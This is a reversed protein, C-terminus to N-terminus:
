SWGPYIKYALQPACACSILADLRLETYRIRTRACWRTEERWDCCVTIPCWAKIYRSHYEVTTRIGNWNWMREDAYKVCRSQKTISRAVIRSFRSILAFFVQYRQTQAKIREVVLQMKSHLSWINKKKKKKCADSLLTRELFIQVVFNFEVKVYRIRRFSISSIFPDILRRRYCLFSIRMHEERM